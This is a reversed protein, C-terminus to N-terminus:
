GRVGVEPGDPTRVIDAVGRVTTIAEILPPSPSDMVGDSGVDVADSEFESESLAAGSFVASAFESSWGESSSSPPASSSEWSARPPLPLGNPLEFVLSPDLTRPLAVIHSVIPM